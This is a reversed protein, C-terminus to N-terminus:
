KIRRGEEELISYGINVEYAVAADVDVEDDYSVGDDHHFNFKVVPEYAVNAVAKRGDDDVDM